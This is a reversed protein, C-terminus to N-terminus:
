GFENHGNRWPRQDRTRAEMAQKVLTQVIGERQDRSGSAEAFRHQERGPCVSQLSAMRQDCPHRQVFLIIVRPEEPGVDEGGQILALRFAKGWQELEELRWFGWWQYVDQSGEAIQYLITELGKHQDQIIIVQDRLLLDMGGEQIEDLVRGRLQM